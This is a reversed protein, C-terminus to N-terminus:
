IVHQLGALTETTTGIKDSVKALNDISNMRMRTFAAAAGVAATASAAGFKTFTIALGGVVKRTKKAAAQISKFAGATKDKALITLVTKQDAM